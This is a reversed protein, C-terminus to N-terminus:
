RARRHVNAQELISGLCCGSLGVFALNRDTVTKTVFAAAREFLLIGEARSARQSARRREMAGNRAGPSHLTGAKPRRSTFPIEGKAPSRLRGFVRWSIRGGQPSKWSPGGDAFELALDSLRAHRPSPQPRARARFEKADKRRLRHSEERPVRSPAESRSCAPWRRGRAWPARRYSDASDNTVFVTV